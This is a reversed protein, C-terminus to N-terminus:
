MLPWGDARSIPYHTRGADLRMLLSGLTPSSEPLFLKGLVILWRGLLGGLKLTRRFRWTTLLWSRLHHPSFCSPPSPRERLLIVLSLSGPIQGPFWTPIWLLGSIQRLPMSLALFLVPM